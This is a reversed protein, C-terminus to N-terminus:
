GDPSRTTSPRHDATQSVGDLMVFETITIKM